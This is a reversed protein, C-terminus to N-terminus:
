ILDGVEALPVWILSRCKGGTSNQSTEPLVRGEHSLGEKKNRLTLKKKIIIFNSYQMLFKFGINKSNIQIYKKELWM